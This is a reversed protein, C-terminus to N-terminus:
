KGLVHSRYAGCICARFDGHTSDRSIEFHSETQMYLFKRPTWIQYKGLLPFNDKYVAAKPVLVTPASKPACRLAIKTIPEGFKRSSPGSVPFILFPEPLKSPFIKHQPLALRAVSCPKAFSDRTKQFLRSRGLFSLPGLAQIAVLFRSLDPLCAAEGCYSAM